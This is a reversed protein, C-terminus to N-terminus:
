LRTWGRLSVMVSVRIIHCFEDFYSLRLIQGWALRGRKCDFALPYGEELHHSSIIGDAIGAGVAASRQRFAVNLAGLDRTGPVARIEIQFRAGDQPRWRLLADWTVLDHDFAIFDFHFDLAARRQEASNASTQYPNQGSKSDTRGLASKTM